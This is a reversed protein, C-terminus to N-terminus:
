EFLSSQLCYVYTTVTYKQTEPKAGGKFVHRLTVKWSSKSNKYSAAPILRSYINKPDSPIASFGGGTAWVEFGPGVGDCKATFSKVAGPAWDLTNKISRGYTATIENGAYAPAAVSISTTLLAIALLLSVIIKKVNLVSVFLTALKKM